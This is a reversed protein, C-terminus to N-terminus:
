VSSEGVGLRDYFFVSYGKAIAYDVFSYGEQGPIQIDWYGRDFDLGHSALLIINSKANPTTPTCFTAGISYSANQVERGSVFQFAAGSTRSELNSIFDVVDYNSKFVPVNWIWNLSTTTVPITYETCKRPSTPGPWALTSTLCVALAIAQSLSFTMTFRPSM